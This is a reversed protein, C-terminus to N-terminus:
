NKRDGPSDPRFVFVDEWNVTIAGLTETTDTSLLLDGALLAVSNTSGVTISRTVYHMADVNADGDLAFNDLNFATTSFTGVTGGPELALSPDAFRIAEGASWAALGPAGSPDVDGDTSLWLGPTSAAVTLTFTQGATTNGQGDDVDFDFTDSATPIGDHVYILRNNDIDDQTFSFIPVGIATTLELQGNSPGSTVTYTISTAPQADSFQLEASSITDTGGENVTSGTNNVESPATSDGSGAKITVAGIVYKDAGSWSWSMPVPVATGPATSGAGDGTAGDAIGDWRKTGTGDASFNLNDSTEVAVTSFVLDDVASDTVTATGTNNDSTDWFVSGLSTSQDVGTFSM